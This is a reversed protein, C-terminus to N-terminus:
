PNLLGHELTEATAQLQPTGRKTHRISSHDRYCLATAVRAAGYAFRRRNFYGTDSGNYQQMGAWPNAEATEVFFPDHNNM